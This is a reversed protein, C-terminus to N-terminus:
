FYFLWVSVFFDTYWDLNQNEYFFTNGTFTLHSAEWLSDSTETLEGLCKFRAPSPLHNSRECSPTDRGRLRLSGPQRLTKGVLQFFIWMRIEYIEVFHPQQNTQCSDKQKEEESKKCAEEGSFFYGKSSLRPSSSSSTIVAIVRLM